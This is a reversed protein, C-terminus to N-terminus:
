HDSRLFDVFGYTVFAGVLMLLALAGFNLVLDM